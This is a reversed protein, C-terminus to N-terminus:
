DLSRRYRLQITNSRVNLESEVTDRSTVPWAPATYRATIRYVGSQKPDYLWACTGGTGPVGLPGCKLNFTYRLTDRADVEVPPSIRAVRYNIEPQLVAGDPTFVEFSFFRPDTLLRVPEGTIYLSTEVLLATDLPEAWVRRLGLRLGATVTDSGQHPRQDDSKAVPTATGDSQPAKPESCSMLALWSLALFMSKDSMM